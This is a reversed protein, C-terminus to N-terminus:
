GCEIPGAIVCRLSEPFSANVTINDNDLWTQLSGNADIQSAIGSIHKQDHGAMQSSSVRSRPKVLTPKERLLYIDVEDESDIDNDKCCEDYVGPYKCQDVLINM